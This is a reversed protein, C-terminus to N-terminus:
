KREERLRETKWLWFPSASKLNQIELKGALSEATKGFYTYEKGGSGSTNM